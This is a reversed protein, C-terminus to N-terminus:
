DDGEDDDAIKEVTYDHDRKRVVTAELIKDGKQLAAAAKLSQADLVRGFVTHRGNLHATPLHTLFFQSGGTDRGAHAMSLSGRFHQRADDRYCECAINYGPGGQGDNTPDDDLTNPDGGQAMFNPIVRHFATGDYQKSEVLSIFNAVTNPAENEFLELEIDGQTTKLLVRPLRQSEETNEDSQAERVDLERIWYDVYDDSAALFNDGFQRFYPGGIEEAQQLLEQAKLFDHTAFHSIGTLNLLIASRQGADAALAQEGVKVAEDYQNSVFLENLVLEAAPVNRPDAAQVAQAAKILRPHVDGTYEATLKEYEARLAERDDPSAFRFETRLREMRGRLDRRRKLLEGFEESPNSATPEVGTAPEGAKPEDPQADAGKEDPKADDTATAADSAAASDDDQSYVSDPSTMPLLLTTLLLILLYRITPMLMEWLCAVVCFATTTGLQLKRWRHAFPFRFPSQTQNLTSPRHTTKPVKSHQM